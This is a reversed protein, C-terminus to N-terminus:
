AAVELLSGWQVAMAEAVGAYTQSRRKWRDHGPPERHIRDSRGQDQVGSILPPLGRLWLHTTKTEGHGFQWPQIVQDPRTWATSLKGVPNEIAVRPIPALWLDMVFRIAEAQETRKEAWWRAGSVALHTCPPFAIMMSWGDELVDRVDGMIHPGETESPLLDCSVADIGRRRFADRVAGSFECAILVRHSTANGM